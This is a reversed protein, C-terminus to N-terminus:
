RRPVLALNFVRVGLERTDQSQGGSIESPSFARDVAITVDVTDGAGLVDQSIEIRRLLREKPPVDIEAVQRGNVLVTTHPTIPYQDAAQVSLFLTADSKPNRVSAVARQKTWRWREPSDPSGESENWGERYSVVDSPAIRLLAVRYAHREAEQGALPLRQQSDPSYLGALLAVNGPQVTDPIFVSRTYEVAQGPSWQTTPTPPRHDDIWVVQGDPSVFHAMVWYNQDLSPGPALEFRYAVDLPGGVSASEAGLTVAVSAVPQDGSGGGCGAASLATLTTVIVAGFSRSRLAHM